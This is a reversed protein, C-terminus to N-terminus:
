LLDHYEPLVATLSQGRHNDMINTLRKFEELHHSHDHLWMYKLVDNWQGALTTADLNNCWDIHQVILSELRQKHHIPLASVTLHDPSIMVALSFNQIELLERNHWQQQLTILSKVNLFGVTSTVTFKVNPCHKKLLNLNKEIGEWNTGQRIYEAEIGYADLSAGITINSFKPWLDLVSYNQYKLTTFNTNYTIELDANGCDILSQLIIYHEKSLLPEGGAFYIKEVSPLYSLIEKLTSDQNKLNLVATTNKVNFIKAEEAAIASSFYSSCMRCKLNCVNSLRIDLYVPNFTDIVANKASIKWRANHYRRHSPLGSDEKSYCYSCEKSRLNNLMNKRLTNFQDSKVISDISQENVNGMPYRRDAVCCPLVNSDPGVYLHMWPLVCFTDHTNTVPFYELDNVVYHQIVCDDTSYLEKAQKLEQGILKNGSIVVIFFNSIDIKLVYKQLQAIVQGPRNPYDYVDGCDQVFVLRENKQFESKYLSQLTTYLWQDGNDKYFNSLSIPETCSYNDKLWNVISQVDSMM